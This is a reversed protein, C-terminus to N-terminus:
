FCQHHNDQEPDLPSSPCQDGGPNRVSESDAISSCFTSANRKRGAGAVGKRKLQGLLSEIAGPRRGFVELSTSGTSFVEWPRRPLPQLWWGFHGAGFLSHRGGSFETPFVESGFTRAEAQPLWNWCGCILTSDRKGIALSTSVLTSLELEKVHLLSCPMCLLSFPMNGALLRQPVCQLM